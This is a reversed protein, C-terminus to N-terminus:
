SPPPHDLNAGPQAALPPVAKIQGECRSCVTGIEGSGQVSDLAGSTNQPPPPSSLAPPPQCSRPPTPVPPVRPHSGAARPAREPARPSRRKGGGGEAGTPAGSGGDGPLHRSPEVGPAAPVGAGVRGAAAPASRAPAPPPPPRLPCPGARAELPRQLVAPRRRRRVRPEAGGRGGRERGPGAATWPVAPRRARGLRLLAGAGDPLARAGCAATRGDTAAGHMPRRPFARPPPLPGGPTSASLHRPLAPSRRPGVAQPGPPTVGAPRTDM